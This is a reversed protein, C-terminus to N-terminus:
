GPIGVVILALTFVLTAISYIWISVRGFIRVTLGVMGFVGLAFPILFGGHVYAESAFISALLSGGLGLSVKIVYLSLRERGLM